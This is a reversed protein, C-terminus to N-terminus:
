SFQCANPTEYNKKYSGYSFSQWFLFFTTNKWFLPILFLGQDNNKETILCSLCSYEFVKSNGVSGPRIDPKYKGPVGNLSIDSSVIIM